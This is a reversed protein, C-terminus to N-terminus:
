NKGKKIATFNDGSYNKQMTLGAVKPNFKAKDFMTLVMIGQWTNPTFEVKTKSSDLYTISKVKKYDLIENVFDVVEPGMIIDLKYIFRGDVIYLKSYPKQNSLGFSTFLLDTERFKATDLLVESKLSDLYHKLKDGYIVPIYSKATDILGQGIVDNCIFPILIIILVTRM